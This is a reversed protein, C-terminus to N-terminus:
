GDVVRYFVPKVRYWQWNYDMAQAGRWILWGILVFTLVAWGIQRLTRL